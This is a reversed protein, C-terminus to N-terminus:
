GDSEGALLLRGIRRGTVSLPLRELEAPMVWRLSEDGSAAQAGSVYAADHCTLTIRFRTVGHKIVAIREGPEILIGTRERVQDVLERRPVDDRRAAIAFRPFDWLGAWREGPGCRRVLVRRGRRVVVAAEHRQEYRTKKAPPPIADQLGAERTPCLRRVPCRDCRPSRPLCVVSGLEMLAQNFTGADRRPVLAEAFSWLLRQGPARLPDDRYALLRSLVRASNAELIPERADFAISLIAGATYRGIGPLARLAAADRPFRGEHEGAITGAALHMQRARRYYGLGEWLRLVEDEDAAALAAVDPLAALFREFYPEVTAVQTQQLMIESVWVAYPDRTRRWPLDRAHRGFWNVLARRM